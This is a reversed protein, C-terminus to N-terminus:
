GSGKDIIPHHKFRTDRPLVNGSTNKTKHLFNVSHGEYTVEYKMFEATREKPARFKLETPRM